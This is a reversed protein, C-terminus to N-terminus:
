LGLVAALAALEREMQWPGHSPVFIVYRDAGAAALEQLVASGKPEAGFVSIEIRAPDRGAARAL